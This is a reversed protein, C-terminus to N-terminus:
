RPSLASVFTSSSHRIVLSWPGLVFSRPVQDFASPIFASCHNGTDLYMCSWSSHNMNGMSPPVPSSLCAPLCAPLSPILHMKEPAQTKSQSCSSDILRKQAQPPWSLGPCSLAPCSIVRRCFLSETAIHPILYCCHSLTVRLSLTLTLSFAM